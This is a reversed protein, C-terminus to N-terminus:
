LETLFPFVWTFSLSSRYGQVLFGCVLKLAICTDKLIAFLFTPFRPHFLCRVSPCAPLFGITGVPKVPLPSSPFSPAPNSRGTWWMPGTRNPRGKSRHGSLRKTVHTMQCLRCKVYGFYGYGAKYMPSRTHINTCTLARFGSAGAPMSIPDDSCELGKGGLRYLFAFMYFQRKLIPPCYKCAAYIHYKVQLTGHPTKYEPVVFSFRLRTSDSIQNDLTFLGM